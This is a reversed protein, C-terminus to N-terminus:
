DLFASKVARLLQNADGVALDPRHGQAITWIITGGLGQSRVYNGKAAISAANEYSLYNCRAGVPGVGGTASLWPANATADYHANMGPLYNAVINRYSFTGDSGVIDGGQTVQDPATVRQYCTGYFGTGVALKAAPIGTGLYYDVSSAVSSPTNGKHAALASSHWSWWGFDEYVMGYSMVAIRDLVDAIADMFAAEGAPPALNTNIWGVPMTLLLNPRATRLAQTLALLPAHDETQIPEWDLDLGDAGYQDVKALLNAVLTARLAPTAAAARWGNIEGAGGVMLIAKRGAAHTANVVGQAWIPGNVADIDFHDTVTANANPILRGVMLHTITAFDIEATALLNREYGVHYGMVWRPSIPPANGTEFGDGFLPTEPGVVGDEAFFRWFAEAAQSWLSHGLGDIACWEVPRMCQEYALCPAPTTNTTTPACTQTAIHNDRIAQGTAFSVGPTQDLKGWILMTGPLNCSVGGNGTYTFDGDVPYLSGSHIGMKRIVGAGLRCGLAQAMTGGGSFGVLYVRTPDISVGAVGYNAIIAQVFHGEHTRGSSTWYEFSGGASSLYSFAAAGNAQTELPLAARIGAASGGDGHLVLVLPLPSASGGTPYSHLTTRQIADVTYNKSQTSYSARAPFSVLLLLVLSSLLSLFSRPM